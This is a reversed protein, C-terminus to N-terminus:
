KSLLQNTKKKSIIANSVHAFRVFSRIAFSISENILTVSMFKRFILITEISQSIDNTEVFKKSISIMFFNKLTSISDNFTEVKTIFLTKRELNIQNQLVLLMAHIKFWHKNKRYKIKIKHNFNENMVILFHNFAYFNAIKSNLIDVHFFEINLNNMTNKKNAINSLRNLVNSVINFKEFRHHINLRFQFFYMFARILKLNLKNVFNFTLKTQVVIDAFHDTYVITSHDFSIIIIRFKKVTWIITTMKLEISWYREEIPSLIKNLFM